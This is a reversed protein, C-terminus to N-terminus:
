GEVITARNGDYIHIARHVNVFVHVTVGTNTNTTTTPAGPTGAGTSYNLVLALPGTNIMDTLIPLGSDDFETSILFVWDTSLDAGSSYTDAPSWDQIYDSWNNNQAGIAYMNFFAAQSVDTTLATTSSTGGNNVYVEQDPFYRGGIQLRYGGLGALSFSNIQDGGLVQSSNTTAATNIGNLIQGFMVKRIGVFNGTLLYRNVGTVNAAVQFSMYTWSTFDLRVEEQATQGMSIKERVSDIFETTVEVESTILQANGIYYYPTAGPATAVTKQVIVQSVNAMLFEIQLYPLCFNPIYKRLNMFFGVNLPLMFSRGNWARQSNTLSYGELMNHFKAVYNTSYFQYLMSCFINYAPVQEIITSASGTFRVTLQQIVSHAYNALAATGAAGAGGADGVYCKFNFRYSTPDTVTNNPINFQCKQSVGGVAGVGGTVYDGGSFNSGGVPQHWMWRRRVVDPYYVYDDVDYRLQAFESHFRNKYLDTAGGFMNTM